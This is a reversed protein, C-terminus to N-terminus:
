IDLPEGIRGIVPAKPREELEDIPVGNNLMDNLQFFSEWMMEFMLNLRVQPNQIRGVRQDIRWQLQRAREQKDEPLGTIFDEIVARHYAEAKEPEERWLRAIEDFPLVEFDSM